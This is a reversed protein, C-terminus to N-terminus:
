IARLDSYLELEKKIDDFSKNSKILDFAKNDIGDAVIDIYEVCNRQGIRHFRDESQARETASFTRSYYIVTNCNTLTVGVNLSQITAVLIRIKKEKFDNLIIDKEKNSLEGSFTKHNIKLETLRDSILNLSKIFAVYVVIQTDNQLCDIFDILVDIKNSISKFVGEETQLTYGEQLQLKHSIHLNRSVKTGKCDLVKYIKEPLDLCENKTKRQSFPELIKMFKDVNKPIPKDFKHNGKQVFESYFKNYKAYFNNKDLCVLHTYLDFINGNGIPTGTLLVCRESDIVASVVKQTRKAKRNKIYHAEDVIFFDSKKHLDDLSCFKEYSFIRYKSKFKSWKEIEDRWNTQLFAPCVVTILKTDFNLVCYDAAIISTITKGLGQEHYLAFKKKEVILKVAEKQHKFLSM